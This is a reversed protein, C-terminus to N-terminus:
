NVVTIDGFIKNVNGDASIVEIQYVYIGTTVSSGNMKGDWYDNIPDFKTVEYILDGWRNFIRFSGFDGSFEPHVTVTFNQNLPNSSRPNFTNPIYYGCDQNVLTVLTDIQCGLEDVIEVIYQGQSIGTFQMNNSEIDGIRATLNASNGELLISGNGLECDPNEILINSIEPIDASPVFVTQEYTCNDQNIISITHSGGALDLFLNSPEFPGQNISFELLDTGSSTIIFLTGNSENCSSPTSEVEIIEPSFSPKIELVESTDLCGYKDQITVKYDGSPLDEFTNNPSYELGDFSYLVESGSANIWISGNEEDCTTHKVRIDDISAVEKQAELRVEFSNSCGNNSFIFITYVGESLSDFLPSEQLNIGDKSFLFSHEESTVIKISGDNQGCHTKSIHFSDVVISETVNGVVVTQTTLCNESTRISIEYEGSNLQEFRNSSQFSVGDISYEIEDEHESVQATISGLGNDCTDQVVLVDNIVPADLNLIEISMSQTCRRSDSVVLNHKGTALNEFVNELQFDSDDVSYMVQGNGGQVFIEVSGTSSGDCGIHTYALSDISMTDVFAFELTAGSVDLGFNCLLEFAGSPFDLQYLGAPISDGRYPVELGSMLYTTSVHCTFDVSFMSQFGFADLEQDLRTSDIVGFPDLSLEIVYDAEAALYLRNNVYSLAKTQIGTEGLHIPAETDFSYKYVSGAESTFYANGFHDFTLGVLTHLKDDRYGNFLEITSGDELDIIYFSGLSSIGYLTGDPSFAIANADRMDATVIYESECTFIDFLYIDPRGYTCMYIDQASSKLVVLM